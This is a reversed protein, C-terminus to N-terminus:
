AGLSGGFQERACPDHHDILGPMHCVNILGIRPQVRDRAEDILTAGRDFTTTPDNPESLPSEARAHLRHHDAELHEAARTPPHEM